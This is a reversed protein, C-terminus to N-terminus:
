KKTDKKAKDALKEVEGIRKQLVDQIDKYTKKLIDQAEDGRKESVEQLKQLRPIIESGGPILKVYKSIESGVGTNKAKSGADKV